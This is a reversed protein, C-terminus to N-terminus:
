GNIDLTRSLSADYHSTDPSVMVPFADAPPNAPAYKVFFPNIGNPQALYVEMTTRSATRGLVVIDQRGDGNYDVVRIGADLSATGCAETPLVSVNSSWKFRGGYNVLTLGVEPYVVDLLGDGNADLWIKCAYPLLGSDSVEVTHSPGRVRIADYHIPHSSVNPDEYAWLLDPQGDGDLDRYLSESAHSNDLHGADIYPRYAPDYIPWIPTGWTSASVNQYQPAGVWGEGVATAPDDQFFDPAGDGDFDLLLVSPFRGITDVTFSGSQGAFFSPTTFAATSGSSQSLNYEATCQNCTGSCGVACRNITLDLKDDNNIDYLVAQPISNDPRLGAFVNPQPQVPGFPAGSSSGNSLRVNWQYTAKSYFVIDDFGDGNVDGTLLGRGGVTPDFPHATDGLRETFKTSFTPTVPAWAYDFITAPLCVGLGDCLSISTVLSRQTGPSATYALKYTRITAQQTSGAITPALMEISTLRRRAVFGLSGSWTAVTDARSPAADYDYHFVVSRNAPQGQTSGTYDIRTPYSEVLPGAGFAPNSYTTAYVISMYNGSHDEVRDLQWGARLHTRGDGGSSEIRSPTTTGYHLIRGNPANVTWSLPGYTDSADILVRAHTDPDTRYETQSGPLPVLRQGDLCFHDQTDLKVPRNMGDRGVSSGCPTISSLGSLSWGLGVIGNGSESSYQLSLGPEVGMRGPPVELPVHYRGSGDSAVTMTGPLTGVASSAVINGMPSPYLLSETPQSTDAVLPCGAALLILSQLAARALVRTLSRVTRLQPM